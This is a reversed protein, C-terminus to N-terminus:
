KEAEVLMSALHWRGYKNLYLNQEEWQDAAAHAEIKAPHVLPFTMPAAEPSPHAGDHTMNTAGVGFGINKVMNVRPTICLGDYKWMAFMFQYDYADIDGRMLNGWINCWHAAMIPDCPPIALTKPKYEYRTWARKWTAWGWMHPFRSFHYSEESAPGPLFNDGSIAMVEYDFKYRELMEECFTFFSPDPLCDDELIIAEHVHSFVRNLGSSQRVGSGLNEDSYVRYVVCPWDVNEIAKRAARTLTEEGPKPGDAILILTPPQYARISEFVRATQDPRRYLFMAVPVKM